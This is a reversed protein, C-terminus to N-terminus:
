NRHVMEVRHHACIRFELKFDDAKSIITGLPHYFYSNERETDWTVEICENTPNWHFLDAGGFTKWGNRAPDTFFDDAWAPTVGRVSAVADIKGELILYETQRKSRLQPTVTHGVELAKDGLRLCLDFLEPFRLVVLSMTYYSDLDPDLILNSQNGIRTILAQLAMAMAHKQEEASAVGVKKADLYGALKEALQRSGLTKGYHEEALMLREAPTDASSDTVTPLLVERIQSIYANGVIEQRAFNIAIYKENILITSVFIVASLDLAYILIFKRNVSLRGILRHLLRFM